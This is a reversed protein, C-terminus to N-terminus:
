MARQAPTGADASSSACHARRLADQAQAYKRGQRKGRDSSRSHLRRRDRYPQIGVPLPLAPRIQADSLQGGHAAGVIATSAVLRGVGAVEQILKRPAAAHREVELPRADNVEDSVVVPMATWPM